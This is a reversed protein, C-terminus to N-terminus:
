MCSTLSSSSLRRSSSCRSSPEHRSISSRGSGSPPKTVSTVSTVSLRRVMVLQEGGDAFLLAQKRAAVVLFLELRLRGAPGLGREEGMEGVVDARREVVDDAEGVHHPLLGIARQPVPAIEVIDLRHLIRPRAAARTRRRSGRAPRARFRALLGQLGSGNSTSSSSARPSAGSRRGPAAAPRDRFAPTGQPRASSPSRKASSRMTELMTSFATRKVGRPPLTV